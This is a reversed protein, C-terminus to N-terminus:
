DGIVFDALRAFLMWSGLASTVWFLALALPWRKKATNAAHGNLISSGANVTTDIYLQQTPMIIERFTPDDIFDHPNM